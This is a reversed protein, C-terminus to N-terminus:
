TLGDARPQLQRMSSTSRSAPIACHLNRGSRSGGASYRSPVCAEHWGSLEKQRGGPPLGIWRMSFNMSCTVICFSTRIKPFLHDGFDFRAIAYNLKM